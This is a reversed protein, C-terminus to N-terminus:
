IHILSLGMIVADVDDPSVGAKELAGRIAVTGLEVASRAALGGMIRGFPTRAGAVIVVDPFSM